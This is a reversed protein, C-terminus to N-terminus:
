SEKIEVYKSERVLLVGPRGEETNAPDGSVGTPIAQWFPGTADGLWPLEQWGNFSYLEAATGTDQAAADAVVVVGLFVFDSGPTEQGYVLYKHGVDAPSRSAIIGAVENAELAEDPMLGQQDQTIRDVIAERIAESQGTQDLPDLEPDFQIGETLTLLNQDNQGLSEAMIEGAALRKHVQLANYILNDVGLTEVPGYYTLYGLGWELPGDGSGESMDDPALEGDKIQQLWANVNESNSSIAQAEGSPSGQDQTSQADESAGCGTVLFVAAWLLVNLIFRGKKMM